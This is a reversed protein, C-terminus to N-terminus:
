EDEAAGNAPEPEAFVLAALLPEVQEAALGSWAALRVERRAPTSEVRHGSGEKARPLAALGAEVHEGLGALAAAFEEADQPEDWLTLGAVLRAGDRGILVFRDGGWGEAAPNTYAVGLAGLAGRPMGGRKELPETALALGFEGLTTEHLLQWGEPLDRAALRVRRPEDRPTEWYKEPHLIQESSRPPDRFAAQVDALEPMKLQAELVSETRALFAAGRTYPALLSKWVLAPAAEMAEAGLEAGAVLEAPDLDAAYRLMWASMLATASGEVVAHYAFQADGDDAREALAADIDHIQDDLAHTLEHALTIAALGGSIGQKLFLTDRDPDYFGALSDGAVERLVRLYDFDAPVIGLLKALEAEAAIEEPSSHKAIRADLYAQLAEQDAVSVTVPRAFSQERLAAVESRVKEALEALEEDPSAQVSRPAASPALAGVLCALLARQM